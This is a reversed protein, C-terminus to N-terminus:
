AAASLAMSDLLREAVRRGLALHERTRSFDNMRIGLDPGQLHHVTVAAGLDVPGRSRMAAALSALLVDLPTRMRRARAPVSADLVFVRTPALAAAGTVPVLDAVGGDVHLTSTAGDSIRVPEFVGPLSTSALLLRLLDGSAHYAARGTGLDTTVVRVPVPLDELRRAPVWSEIMAALGDSSCVSSPHRVLHGVRQWGGPFIDRGSLGAWRAGLERAGDVSLHTSLYASNLAGVSTGVFADPRIGASLLVEAMGVQVAGRAAGGSLVFVDRDIM